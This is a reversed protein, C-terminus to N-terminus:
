GCATIRWLTAGGLDAVWEFGVSTDVDLYGPFEAEAAAWDIDEDEYYFPVGGQGEILACVDPDSGILNFTEALQVQDWPLGASTDVRTMAEADSLVPVLGAGSAPVGYVVVGDLDDGSAEALALFAMREEEGMWAPHILASVDFGRRTWTRLPELSPLVVALVLAAVVVVALLRGPLRVRAPERGGGALPGSVLRELVLAALCGSMMALVAFYRFADRWWGGTLAWWPGEPALAVLVLGITAAWVAPLMPRRTATLLIVGGVALLVLLWYTYPGADYPSMFFAQELAAEVTYTARAYSGMARLAPVATMAALPVATGAAGLLVRWRLGPRSGWTIWYTAGAVLAVIVLWQGAGAHAMSVGGVLILGIGLVLRPSRSRFVGIVAAVSGPLLATAWAAATQANFTVMFAPFWMTSMGLVPATLLAVRGGGVSATLLVIGLPVMFACILVVMTNFALPASVGEGMLLSALAHWTDPYYSGGNLPAAATLMSANGTRHISEILNLHFMADHNQLIRSPSGVERIFVTLQLAAALVVGAGAWRWPVAGRSLDPGQDAGRRDLAHRGQNGRGRHRVAWGGLVAGWTLLTWGTLPTWGLGLFPMITTAAGVMLVTLAPGAGLAISWPTGCGRLILAGPGTVAVLMGAALLVLGIWPLLM